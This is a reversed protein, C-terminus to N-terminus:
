SSTFHNCRDQNPNKGLVGSGIYIVKDKYVMYNHYKIEELTNNKM